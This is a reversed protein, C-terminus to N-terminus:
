YILFHAFIEGYILLSNTVYSKAVMGIEKNILFIQNSKKDTCTRGTKRMYVDNNFSVRNECNIVGSDLALGNEILFCYLTFM